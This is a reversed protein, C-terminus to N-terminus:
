SWSLYLTVWPRIPQRLTTSDRRVLVSGAQHLSHHSLLYTPWRTMNDRCMAHMRPVVGSNDPWGVSYNDMTLPCCTLVVSYRVAALPWRVSTTKNRDQMDRAWMDQQYKIHRESCTECSCPIPWTTHCRPLYTCAGIPSRSPLAMPSCKNIEIAWLGYLKMSCTATESSGQALLHSSSGRSV